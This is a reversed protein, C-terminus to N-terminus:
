TLVSSHHSESTEPNGCVLTMKIKFLDTRSQQVATRDRYVNVYKENGRQVLGYTFQYELSIFEVWANRATRSQVRVQMKFGKCISNGWGASTVLLRWYYERIKCGWIVEEASKLDITECQSCFSNPWTTCNAENASFELGAHQICPVCVCVCWM